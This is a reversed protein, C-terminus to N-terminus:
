GGNAHKIFEDYPLIPLTWWDQRKTFDRLYQRYRAFDRIEDCGDYVQLRTADEARAVKWDVTSFMADREQRKALKIEEVIIAAIEEESRKSL